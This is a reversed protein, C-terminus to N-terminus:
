RAIAKILIKSELLLDIQIVLDVRGTNPSEPPHIRYGLLGFSLGSSRNSDPLIDSSSGQSLQLARSKVKDVEIAVFKDVDNLKPCLIDSSHQEKRETLRRSHVHHMCADPIIMIRLPHPSLITPLQDPVDHGLQREQEGSSPRDIRRNGLVAMPKALGIAGAMNPAARSLPVDPQHCPPNKPSSVLPITPRFVLRTKRSKAGGDRHDIMEAVTLCEM